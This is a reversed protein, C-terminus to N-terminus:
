KPDKKSHSTPRAGPPHDIAKKTATDNDKNPMGVQFPTFSTHTRLWSVVQSLLNEVANLRGSMKDLKSSLKNTDARAEKRNNDVSDSLNDLKNSVKDIDARTEKRYNDLKNSVKDIDARTEKRYNDLKNSM